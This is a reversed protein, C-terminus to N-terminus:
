KEDKQEMIQCIGMTWSMWMNNIIDPQIKKYLEIIQNYFKSQNVFECCDIMWLYCTNDHLEPFQEKIHIRSPYLRHNDCDKGRKGEVASVISENIISSINPRQIIKKITETHEDNQILMKKCEIGLKEMNNWNEIFIHPTVDDIHLASCILMCEVNLKKSINHCAIVTQSDEVPTGFELENGHIMADVGGDVLIIQKIDNTEIFRQLENELLPNPILRITYIPKNLECSLHYEPFYDQNNKTFKTDKNIEYIYTSSDTYQYSTLDRTFSYNALFCLDQQEKSLKVYWWLCTYIDYGGGCGLVLTKKTIKNVIHEM